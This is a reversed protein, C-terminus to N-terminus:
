VCWGVGDILDVNYDCTYIILICRQRLMEGSPLLSGEVSSVYWGLFPWKSDIIKRVERKTPYTLIWERSPLREQFFQLIQWFTFWELAATEHWLRPASAGGVWEQYYSRFPKPLYFRQNMLPSAMRLAQNRHSKHCFSAFLFGELWLFEM